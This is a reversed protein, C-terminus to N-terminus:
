VNVYEGQLHHAFIDKPCSRIAACETSENCSGQPMEEVAQAFVRLKKIRAQGQMDLRVQFGFGTNLPKNDTLDDTPAPVPLRRRSRYQAMAMPEPTCGTDCLGTTACDTWSHWTQWVPYQDPRYSVTTTVTGSINDLWVDGTDLRKLGERNDGFPFEGSEVSWKITRRPGSEFVDYGVKDKTLEYIYIRASGNLTIFFCREEGHFKGKIIKLVNLGTWLGDYVPGRKMCLSGVPDFDLVILGKHYVGNSINRRPSMTFLLRNDFLVGSSFDLLNKDDAELLFGVERSLPTSGWEEDQRISMKLSRIGDRSRFFIDSNVNVISGEGAGGAVNLAIRQLPIELNKWTDRDPPVYVSHVADDTFVILEGQGLATNLNSIFKLGTINGSQLPVTFSGGENLYDNETFRLVADRFNYLSSGSPGGVIDSAIYDRGKAVWLRGLGYAMHTGTPVESRNSDSRRAVSGNYIIPQSQGDQVILFDEAQCMYAHELRGNNAGGEVDIEQARDRGSYRPGISIRFLRGGVSVIILADGNRPKFYEAGQFQGTEFATSADSDDQWDLPLGVFSPRCEAYGSRFTANVAMAVQNRNILSPSRGADVGGDLISLGDQLRRPAREAM